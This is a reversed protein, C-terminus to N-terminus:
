FRWGFGVNSFFRASQNNLGWGVRFGVEVNSTVLYHLGTSFYHQSTDEAKGASFVGFYEVHTAWKEGIPIKLVASPAWNSFHDGNESEMGYRIAADFRWKNPLLWGAAYTAVLRSATTAGTSGGTPTFGQVIVISRPLWGDQYTLQVKAGYALTYERRLRAQANPDEDSADSGSTETGVGGVEYNWGLRLEIRDTLGYRAVFEPVSHTEKFGRNEQFTYASEVVLRGRGVVSTAPTFSDRDTEIEDPEAEREPERDSEPAQGMMRELAQVPSDPRNPATPPDEFTSRGMGSGSLASLPPPPLDIRGTPLDQAPARGCAVLLGFALLMWSTYHSHDHEAHDNENRRTTFNRM